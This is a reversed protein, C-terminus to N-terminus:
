EGLQTHAPSFPAAGSSCDGKVEPVWSISSSQPLATQPGTGSRHCGTGPGWSEGSGGGVQRGGRTLPRAWVSAPWAVRRGSSPRGRLEAGRPQPGILARSDAQRARRSHPEPARATASSAASLLARPAAARLTGHGAGLAARLSCPRPPRASASTGAAREPLALAAPPPCRAALYARPGRSSSFARPGVPQWGAGDSAARRRTRGGQLTVEALARPARPRRPRPPSLGRSPFRSAPPLFSARRGGAPGPM